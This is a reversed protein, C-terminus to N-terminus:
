KMNHVKKVGAGPTHFLAHHLCRAHPSAPRAPNMVHTQLSQFNRTELREGLLGDKVEGGVDGGDDPRVPTALGVDDVRQPPGHALLACPMKAPLGHLVDDEAAALPQRGDAHRLDGHQQVVRIVACGGVVGGEGLDGDRPAQEAGTLRFVEDVPHGATQAVDHVQEQPATDAVLGIRNDSLSPDLFQDVGLGLVPAADDLLRGTRTAELAALLRGFPPHLARALVQQADVVDHALHLALEPLDLQLRLLGFPVPSELLLQLFLLQTPRAYARPM